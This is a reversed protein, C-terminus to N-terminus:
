SNLNEFYLIPTSLKKNELSYSRSAPAETGLVIASCCTCFSGMALFSLDIDIIM